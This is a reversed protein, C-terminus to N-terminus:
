GLRTPCSRVESAMSGAVVVAGVVAVLCLAGVGTAAAAKWFSLGTAVEVGRVFLFLSWVLASIGLAISFAAWATSLPDPLSGSAYTDTGVILLDLPLLVVLALVQPFTSAGWVLRLSGGRAESRLGRVVRPGVFGWIAQALLALLGGLVLAGAINFAVYRDTCIERLGALAGVKLWLSFTAAGGIFALVYPSLGEAPRREARARREATKLAATFGDHPALLVSRLTLGLRASGPNGAPTATSQGIM